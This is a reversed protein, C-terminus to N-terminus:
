LLDIDEESPESPNKKKLEKELENIQTKIEQIEERISKMENRMQEKLQKICKYLEDEISHMARWVNGGLM